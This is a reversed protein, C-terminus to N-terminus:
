QAREGVALRVGALLKRAAEAHRARGDPFVAGLELLPPEDHRRNRAQAVAERLREIQEDGLGHARRQRSVDRRAGRLELHAGLDARRIAQQELTGSWRLTLEVDADGFVLVRAAAPAPTSPARRETRPQTERRRPTEGFRRGLERREREGDAHGHAARDSGRGADVDRELPRVIEDEVAALEASDQELELGFRMAAAADDCAYAQVHGHRCRLKGLEAVPRAARDIERGRAARRRRLAPRERTV